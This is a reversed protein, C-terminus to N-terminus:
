KPKKTSSYLDIQSQHIDSLSNEKILNHKFQDTLSQKINLNKDKNLISLRKFDDDISDTYVCTSDKSWNDFNVVSNRLETSRRSLDLISEDTSTNKSSVPIDHTVIFSSQANTTVLHDFTTDMPINQEKVNNDDPFFLVFFFFFEKRKIRLLRAHDLDLDNLRFLILKKLLVQQYASYTVDHLFFYREKPFFSKHSSFSLSV